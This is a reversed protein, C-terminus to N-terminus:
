KKNYRRLKERTPNYDGEIDIKVVWIFVSVIAIGLAVGTIMLWIM